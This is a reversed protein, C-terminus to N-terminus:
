HDTPARVELRDAKEGRGIKEPMEMPPCAHHIVMGAMTDVKVKWIGSSHPPAMVSRWLLM